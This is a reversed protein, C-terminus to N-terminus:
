VVEMPTALAQPLLTKGGPPRSSPLSQKQAARTISTATIVQAHSSNFPRQRVCRFKRSTLSSAQNHFKKEAVVMKSCVQKKKKVTTQGIPYQKNTMSWKLFNIALLFGFFCHNSGTSPRLILKIPQKFFLFLFILIYKIFYFYVETQTIHTYTHVTNCHLINTTWM